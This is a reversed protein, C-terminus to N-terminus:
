FAFMDSFANRQSNEITQRLKEMSAESNEGVFGIMFYHDSQTDHVLEPYLRFGQIKGTSNVHTRPGSCGHILDGFSIHSDDKYAVPLDKAIDALVKEEIDKLNLEAPIHDFVLMFGNHIDDHKCISELEPGSRFLM